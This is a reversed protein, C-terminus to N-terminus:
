WDNQIRTLETTSLTELGKTARISIVVGRGVVTVQEGVGALTALEPIQKLLDFYAKSYAKVVVERTRGAPRADTWVDNVLRLTRGGVRRETAADAADSRSEKALADLAVTSTAQRQVSAARAAEFQATAAAPAASPPAANGAAGGGIAGRVSTVSTQALQMQVPEKVFYSTFDTPISFREGLERIENDVEPSGGGRRREASLLGIRQAAWLRAVFQNEGARDPFNVDTSWRIPRGNQKGEVIVAGRGDGRYRAFVVLDQGAFIDAGNAPMMRNFSVNGTVRVRVDTLLPDVLRSAVLAVSREVSEEPRVFQSTGRGEIALQEILSVNVDAGVGFSFVRPAVDSCGDANCNRRQTRSSMAALRIPDREGVTPAGDTIFLVVPLRGDPTSVRMAENLAAEINTSGSADLGDLYRRAARLNEPTARVFEDRFTHVDTAFDILRFRDDERLTELVQRGAARAQQIKIGAMSGSVDFVVTVDRPTVRADRDREPPTITVMAFGEERGPANTLVSISAANARGVPVLITADRADGRIRAEMTSGRDSVDILNTPSYPRGFGAGDPYELVMDVRPSEAGARNPDAKTGGFYDVRLADGERTAVSQFRVVVKKTEGPNIPFIRARLLGLGMYEVLAPDRQRRVIEEYMRRAEDAGYTEGAVLEGNIELQLDQFAANKPLPFMYDAEGIRNGRNVFQEEVEYRLVRDILRVRVSTRTRVIQQEVRCPMVRPADDLPRPQPVICDRGILVGQSSAVSAATALVVAARIVTKM